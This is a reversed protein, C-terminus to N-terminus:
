ITVFESTSHGKRNVFEETTVISNPIFQSEREAYIYDNFRKTVLPKGSVPEAVIYVTEIYVTKTYTEMSYVILSTEGFIM